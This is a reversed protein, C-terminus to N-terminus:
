KTVHRAKRARSADKAIQKYHAASNRIENGWGTKHKNNFALAPAPNAGDHIAEIIGEFFETDYTDWLEFYEIVAMPTTLRDLIHAYEYTMADTVRNLYEIASEGPKKM